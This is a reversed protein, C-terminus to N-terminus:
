VKMLSLVKVWLNIRTSKQSANVSLPLATRLSQSTRKSEPLPPRTSKQLKKATEEAERKTRERAFDFGESFTGGSLSTGIGEGIANLYGITNDWLEGVKQSLELLGIQAFQFFNSFFLKM